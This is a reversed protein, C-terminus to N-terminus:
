AKVVPLALQQLKRASQHVSVRPCVCPCPTSLRVSSRSRRAADAGTRSQVTARPSVSLGTEAAVNWLRAGDLHLKIDEDLADLGERIRLVEDQPLITGNLSNELSVLRTPASHVDDGLVLNPQVDHAWTLHHGNQPAVTELAAGSHFAAGGAEYRHIHSRVDCLISYPPQLLHTRIALQNSLTGSVVFLAAEKGALAALEAEFSTTTEDEQPCFPL